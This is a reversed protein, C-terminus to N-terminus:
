FKCEVTTEVGSHKGVTSVECGLARFLRDTLDEQFIPEKTNEEVAKYIDEVKITRATRVILDYVDVVSSNVPCRAEIRLRHTVVM